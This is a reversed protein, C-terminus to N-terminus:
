IGFMKGDPSFELSTIAIKNDNLEYLDTEIKFKFQYEEENFPQEYNQPNWYEIMGSIDTTLVANYITNYKMCSIPSNHISITKIVKDGGIKNTDLIYIKGSDKESVAILM